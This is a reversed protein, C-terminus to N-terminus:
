DSSEKLHVRYVVRTQNQNVNQNQDPSSSGKSATWLVASVTAPSRGVIKSVRHKEQSLQPTRFTTGERAGDGRKTAPSSRLLLRRGMERREAGLGSDSGLM